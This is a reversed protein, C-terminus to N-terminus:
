IKKNKCKETLKIKSTKLKLLKSELKELQKILKTNNRTIKNITKKLALAEEKYEKDNTITIFIRALKKKTV